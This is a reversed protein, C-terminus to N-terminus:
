PASMRKAPLCVIFRRVFAEISFESEVRRRAAAGMARALDRDRALRVIAAALQDPREPAVVLGTVGDRVVEVLGGRATCIVPRGHGGAEIASLGFPEAFRSPMVCVDIGAFIEHQDQRFGCWEVLDAINLDAIRRKLSEVYVADGAGFIRLGVREGARAALAVAEILDDHGKWAGIQGAIGLLLVERAAPPECVPAAPAGLHVISLQAAPVGLVALSQVAAASVGVIRGTRQAIVRYVWAFRLNQAVVDHLWFVDCSPKLFPLLLMAHHWHTHIIVDAKDRRMSRGYRFALAPWYRLQNLSDVLPRWKLTMSIFGLRLRRYGFGAEDLRRQFDGDSWDSVMFAVDYGAARLGQALNLSAIEKGSVYGAGCVIVVKRRGTSAAGHKM